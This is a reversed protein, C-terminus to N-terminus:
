NDGRQEGIVKIKYGLEKEIQEVTMERYTEVIKECLEDGNWYIRHEHDQDKWIVMGNVYATPAAKQAWYVFAKLDEYLDWAVYNGLSYLYELNVEVSVSNTTDIYFAKELHPERMSLVSWWGHIAIQLFDLDEEKDPTFTIINNSM